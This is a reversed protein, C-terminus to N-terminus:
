PNRVRKLFPLLQALCGGGGDAPPPPPPPKLTGAPGAGMWAQLTVEGNHPVKLELITGNRTLGGGSLEGIFVDGPQGAHRAFAGFEGPRPDIVEMTTKGVTFELGTRRFSEILWYWGLVQEYGGASAAPAIDAIRAIDGGERAAVLERVHTMLVFDHHSGSTPPPYGSGSITADTSYESLQTFITNRRVGDQAFEVTDPSDLRVWMCIDGVYPTTSV